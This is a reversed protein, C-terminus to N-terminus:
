MMHNLYVILHGGNGNRISSLPLQPLQLSLGVTPLLTPRFPKHFSLRYLLHLYLHYRSYCFCRSLIDTKLFNQYIRLDNMPMLLQWSHIQHFHHILQFLHVKLHYCGPIMMLTLLHM